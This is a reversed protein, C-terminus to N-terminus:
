GARLKQDGGTFALIISVAGDRLPCRKPIQSPGQSCLAAKRLTQPGLYRPSHTLGSQLALRAPSAEGGATHDM